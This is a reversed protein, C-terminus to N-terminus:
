RRVRDVIRYQGVLEFSFWRVRWIPPEPTPRYERRSRLFPCVNGTVASTVTVNTGPRAIVTRVLHRQGLADRGLVRKRPRQAAPTDGALLM